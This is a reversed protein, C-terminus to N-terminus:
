PCLHWSVPCACAGAVAQRDSSTVGPAGPQPPRVCQARGEGLWRGTQVVGEDLLGSCHLALAWDQGPPQHAWLEISGEPAARPGLVETCLRVDCAGRGRGGLPQGGASVIATNRRRMQRHLHGTHLPYIGIVQVGRHARRHAAVHREVPGRCLLADTHQGTVRAHDHHLGGIHAAGM